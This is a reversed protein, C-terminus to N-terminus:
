KRSKCAQFIEDTVKQALDVVERLFIKQTIGGREMRALRAEWGTTLAADAIGTGRITEYIFLGKRTPIIYHGSYRIYKREILTQIIGARTAPTGLGATDMYEILEADTFPSAPLDKRRVLNCASVPLTDGASLAPLEQWTFGQPLVANGREFVTHWGKDLIRCTRIRFTRAACVAEVTTCEVRCSPMFAELLRGAILTYVQMEQRGLGEPRVGTVTIAPHEALSDDGSLQEPLLMTDTLCVGHRIGSWPLVKEMVAPLTDYVERAIHHGDTRPYSILKKEYLGQAIDATQGATLGYLCSADKQLGTLNYPAPPSVEKQQRHVSTIRAREAYKCDNYFMLATERDSFEDTCRMKLLTGDKHMNIYVPWSDAGIHNERERYRSSVAALVPTQVRGLSHNGLGTAKCLAYSANMGLLWDAKNRSDSALFMRDFMRVPLLNTMGKRIAEDTLSSLWLRQVPQRCGLYRYLYRFTMEGERSAETAAIITDCEALVKEVTKLQMVASIDPIWGEDTRVHKVMLRFDGPVLPFDKRELKANGYDKPMALSLMNGFTWTVAYGNGTMYGKEFRHAGVIRAIEKGVNPRDTLIAIM